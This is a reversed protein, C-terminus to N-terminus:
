CENLEPLDAGLYYHIVPVTQGPQGRLFPREGPVYFLSLLFTEEAASLSGPALTNMVSLHLAYPMPDDPPRTNNFSPTGDFSLLCNFQGVRLFGPPVEEGPRTAVAKRMGRAAALVQAPVAVWREGSPDLDIASFDVAPRDEPAVHLSYFAEWQQRYNEVLKM